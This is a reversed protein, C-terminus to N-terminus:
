AAAAPSRAIRESTRRWGFTAPAAPGYFDRRSAVCSARRRGAAADVAWCDGDPHAGVPVPWGRLSRRRLRGRRPRRAAREPPGPLARAARRRPRRGRLAAVMAAQVPAPVIMGAHKRVELLAASWRPDGAVFGARYGALNSRKSLSHVALLGDHGGGCVEPHLVSAADATGASALYCEDSAVLSATSVHGSSWRACTAPPWCAGPPTPRATSGSWACGPDLAAGDRSDTPRGHRRGATAGVDYTPYALERTARVVDGPRDGAPDAAM